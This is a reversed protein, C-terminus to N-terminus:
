RRAQLGSRPRRADFEPPRTEIKEVPKEPPLITAPETGNPPEPESGHVSLLYALRSELRAVSREMSQRCGRGCSLLNKIEDVLNAPKNRDIEGNRLLLDQPRLEHFRKLGYRLAAPNNVTQRMNGLLTSIEMDDAFRSGEAKDIAASYTPVYSQIAPLNITETEDAM